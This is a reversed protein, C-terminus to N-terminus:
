KAMAKRKQMAAIRQKFSGSRPRGGREVSRLEARKAQEIHVPEVELVRAGSRILSAAIAASLGIGGSIIAVRKHKDNM